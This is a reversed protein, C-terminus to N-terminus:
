ITSEKKSLTIKSKDKSKININIIITYCNWNDSMMNGQAGSITQVQM